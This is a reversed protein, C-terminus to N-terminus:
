IGLVKMNKDYLSWDLTAHKDTVSNLWVTIISKKTFDFVVKLRYKRNVITKSSIVLREVYADERKDIKYEIIESNGIM